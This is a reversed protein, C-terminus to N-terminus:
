RHNTSDGIEQDEDETPSGKLGLWRWYPQESSLANGCTECNHTWSVTGFELSLEDPRLRNAADYDPCYLTWGAM